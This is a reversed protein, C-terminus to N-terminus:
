TRRFGTAGEARRLRKSRKGVFLIACSVLALFFVLAAGLYRAREGQEFDKAELRDLGTRAAEHGPDLALVRRYTEPDEIGRAREDATELFLIRGEIQSKRPTEPAIRLAKRYAAISARPDTPELRAAEALYAPAMEQRRDLEPQRALVKDFAAVAEAHRGEAESKLGADLLGYVEQLRVKDFAVFLENAVAEASLGDAAPHGTLNAYAERLKWIADQGFLLVAERAAARVPERDANVFSLVVPVADLDQIRGYARLVDVLVRPDTTQVADGAIRKGMGELLGYAWTRVEPGADRRTEILAPVAKDGLAKLERTLLPRFAGRHDGAVKVMARVAPTTGVHALAVLLAETERQVNEADEKLSRKRLEALKRGIAPLADPGLQALKQEAAKAAAEDTNSLPALMADLAESSLEQAAADPAGWAPTTTLMLMLGLACAKNM